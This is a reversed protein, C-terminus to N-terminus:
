NGFWIFFPFFYCILRSFYLNKCKCSSDTHALDMNRKEKQFDEQSATVLSWCFNIFFYISIQTREKRYLLPLAMYNVLGIVFSLKTTAWEQLASCNFLALQASWRTLAILDLRRLTTGVFVTRKLSLNSNLGVWMADTSVYNQLMVYWNLQFCCSEFNRITQLNVERIYKNILLYM